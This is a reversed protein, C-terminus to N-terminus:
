RAHNYSEKQATFTMVRCPYEYYLVEETNKILALEGIWDSDLGSLTKRLEEGIVDIVTGSIVEGTKYDKVKKVMEKEHCVVYIVVDLTEIFYNGNNIHDVKFCIFPASDSITKPNQLFPFLRQNLLGGGCDIYDKDLLYVIENNELITEIVKSKFSNVDFDSM